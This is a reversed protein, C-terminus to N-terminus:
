SPRSWGRLDEGPQLGLEDMLLTRGQRYSELAEAQKGSRYLALM